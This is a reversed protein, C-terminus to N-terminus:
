QRWCGMVGAYFNILYFDFLSQGRSFNLFINSIILLHGFFFKCSDNGSFELYGFLQEDISSLRGTASTKLFYVALVM